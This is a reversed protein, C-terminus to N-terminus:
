AIDKKEKKQIRKRENKKENMKSERIYEITHICCTYTNIYTCFSLWIVKALFVDALDGEVEVNSEKRNVKSQIRFEVMEVARKERGLSLVRRGYYFRFSFYFYFFFFFSSFSFSHNNYIYIYINRGITYFIQHMTFFFFDNNVIILEDITSKM